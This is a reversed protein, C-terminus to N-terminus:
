RNQYVHDTMGEIGYDAYYSILESISLQLERKARAADNIQQVRFFRCFRAVTNETSAYRSGISYVADIVCLPLSAYGYEQALEISSFDLNEKCYQVLANLDALQM